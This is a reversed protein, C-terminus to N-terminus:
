LGRRGVGISEQMERENRRGEGRWGNEWELGVSM